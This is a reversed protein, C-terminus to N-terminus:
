GMIAYELHPRVLSKYFLDVGIKVSIGQRGNILMCIKALARKAKGGAYDVQM